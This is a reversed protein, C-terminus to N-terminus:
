APKRPLARRPSSVPKQASEPAALSLGPGAFLQALSERMLALCRKKFKRDLASDPWLGPPHLASRIRPASVGRGGHWLGSRLKGHARCDNGRGAEIGRGVADRVGFQDFSEVGIDPMEVSLVGRGDGLSAHLRKERRGDLEDLLSRPDLRAVHDLLRADEIRRQHPRINRLARVLLDGDERLNGHFGGLLRKLTPALRALPDARHEARRGVHLAGIGCHGDLDLSREPDASEREIHIDGTRRRGKPDLRRRIVDRRPRHIRRQHDVGLDARPMEVEAIAVAMENETVHGGRHDDLSGSSAFPPQSM